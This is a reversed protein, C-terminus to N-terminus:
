LKSVPMAETCVRASLVKSGRPTPEVDTSDGWDSEVSLSPGQFAKSQVSGPKAPEPKPQSTSLLKAKFAQVGDDSLDPDSVDSIEGLGLEALIEAIM